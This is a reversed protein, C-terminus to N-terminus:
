KTQFINQIMKGTTQQAVFDLDSVEKPSLKWGLAGINEKAQAMSKVGPIPITGKCICWNVAVQSPTKGKKRAIEQLVELVDQIKPLLRKFLAGRPGSPLKDKTFKGTLLGLALPSYAIVSIGLEDCIRLLEIQEPGFSLLSFQIQASSLPVGRKELRRYIVKLQQPGYNSVGIAKVLGKEYIEALGNQM